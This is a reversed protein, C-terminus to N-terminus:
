NCLDHQDTGKQLKGSILPTKGNPAYGRMRNAENQIGTEDGWYVEAKKQRAKAVIKPYETTLWQGVAKSNQERAKKIPKQPTFGWRSLYEGVTRIPMTMGYWQRILEQVAKRTWLAFPFKLQDPTKDILAKQIETEQDFSLTRQEGKRRGRKGPSIAKLGGKIYAQWIKSARGVSIGVGEATATNTLGQKRLRVVQKRIEYQTEPSHKRADIKEM